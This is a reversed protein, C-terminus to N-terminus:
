LGILISGQIFVLPFWVIANLKGKVKWYILLCFICLNTMSIATVPVSSGLMLSMVAPLIWQFKFNLIVYWKYSVRIRTM